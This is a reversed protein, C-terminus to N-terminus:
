TIPLEQWHSQHHHIRFIMRAQTGRSVQINPNRAFWIKTHGQESQNTLRHHKNINYHQQTNHQIM